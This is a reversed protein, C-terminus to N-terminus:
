LIVISYIDVREIDDIVAQLETLHDNYESGADSKQWKESRGDFYDQRQDLVAQVLRAADALHASAAALAERDLKSLKIM